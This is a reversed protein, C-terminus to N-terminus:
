QYSVEISTIENKLVVANKLTTEVADACISLIQTYLYRLLFMKFKVEAQRGSPLVIMKLIM